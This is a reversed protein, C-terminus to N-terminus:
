YNDMKILFQILCFLANQSLFKGMLHTINLLYKVRIITQRILIRMIILCIKYLKHQDCFYKHESLIGLTYVECPNKVLVRLIMYVGSISLIMCM